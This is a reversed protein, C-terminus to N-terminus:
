SSVLAQVLQAAAEDALNTLVAELLVDAPPLDRSTWRAYSGDDFWEAAHVVDGSPPLESSIVDASAARLSAWTTTADHALTALALTTPDAPLGDGLPHCAALAPWTAAGPRELVIAAIRDLWHLEVLAGPTLEPPSTPRAVARSLHDVMPGTVREITTTGHDEDFRLLVDGHREVALTMRTSPPDAAFREGDADHDSDDTLDFRGIPDRHRARSVATFGLISWSPPALWGVLFRDDDDPFISWAHLRVRDGTREAGFLVPADTRDAARHVLDVALHLFSPDDGGDPISPRSWSSPPFSSM